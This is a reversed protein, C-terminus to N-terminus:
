NALALASIAVRRKDVRSFHLVLKRLRRDIKVHLAYEDAIAPLVGFVLRSGDM